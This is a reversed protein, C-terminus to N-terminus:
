ERCAEGVSFSDEEQSRPHYLAGHLHGGPPPLEADGDVAEGADLQLAEGASVAADM